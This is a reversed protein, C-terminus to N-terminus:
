RVVPQPRAFLHAIAIRKCREGRMETEVIAQIVYPQRLAKEAPLSQVISLKPWLNLMEQIGPDGEADGPDGPDGVYPAFCNSCGPAIRRDADMSFRLFSRGTGLLVLSARPLVEHISRVCYMSLPSGSGATEEGSSVTHPYALNCVLLLTKKYEEGHM